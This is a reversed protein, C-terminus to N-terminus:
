GFNEKSKIFKYPIIKLNNKMYKENYKVL